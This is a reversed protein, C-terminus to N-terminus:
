RSIADLPNPTQPSGFNPDSQPFEHQQVWSRLWAALNTEFISKNQVFLSFLEKNFAGLRRHLFLQLRHDLLAWEPTKFQLWILNLKVKSQRTNPILDFCTRSRSSYCDFSSASNERPANARVTIWDSWDAQPPAWGIIFDHIRWEFGPPPEWVSRCSWVTLSPQQLQAGHVLTKWGTLNSPQIEELSGPSDAGLDSWWASRRRQRLWWAGMPPPLAIVEIFSPLVALLRPLHINLFIM